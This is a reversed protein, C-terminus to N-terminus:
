TIVEWDGSQINKTINEEKWYDYAFDSHNRYNRISYLNTKINQAFFEYEGGTGKGNAVRFATGLYKGEKKKISKIKFKAM